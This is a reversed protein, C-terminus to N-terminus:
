DCKTNQKDQKKTILYTGFLTICISGSSFIGFWTDNGSFYVMGGICFLMLISFITVITKM